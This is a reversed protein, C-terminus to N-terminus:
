NHARLFNHPGLCLGKDDIGLVPYPSTLKDVRVGIDIIPSKSFQPGYVYALCLSKDTIDPCLSTLKNVYRRRGHRYGSFHAWM